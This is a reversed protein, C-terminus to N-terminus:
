VESVQEGGVCVVRAGAAGTRESTACRVTRACGLARALYLAPVIGPCEVLEAFEEPTVKLSLVHAVPELSAVTFMKGSVKFQLHNEWQVQESTGPLSLCLARLWELGM